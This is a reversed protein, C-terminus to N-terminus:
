EVLFAAKGGFGFTGYRYSPVKESEPVAYQLPSDNTHPSGAALM